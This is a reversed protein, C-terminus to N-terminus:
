QFLFLRIKILFYNDRIRMRLEFLVYRSFIQNCKEQELNDTFRIVHIFFSSKENEFRSFELRM